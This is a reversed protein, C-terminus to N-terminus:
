ASSYSYVLSLRATMLIRIFHSRNRLPHILALYILHGFGFLFIGAPVFGIYPNIKLLDFLLWTAYMGEMLFAGHALNVIRMVGFILALGMGILAYLAGTLLGNM